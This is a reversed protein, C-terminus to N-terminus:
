RKLFQNKGRIVDYTIDSIYYDEDEIETSNEYKKRNNEDNRLSKYVYDFGVTWYSYRNIVPDKSKSVDIIRQYSCDDGNYYDDTQEEKTRNNRNGCLISRISNLSVEDWDIIQKRYRWYSKSILSVIVVDLDDYGEMGEMKGRLENIDKFKNENIIKWNEDDRKRREERVVIKKEVEERFEREYEQFKDENYNLIECVRDYFVTIKFSGYIVDKRSYDILGLDKLEEMCKRRQHESIFVDRDIQTGSRVFYGKYKIMLDPNKKKQDETIQIFYILLDTMTKSLNNDVGGFSHILKKRHISFSNNCFINSINYDCYKLDTM